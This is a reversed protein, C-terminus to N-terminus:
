RYTRHRKIIKAVTNQGVGFEKSITAITVDPFESKYRSRGQPVSRGYRRVIAQKTEEPIANSREEDIDDINPDAVNIPRPGYDNFGLRAVRM